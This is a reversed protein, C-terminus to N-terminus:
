SPYKLLSSGWLQCLVQTLNYFKFPHANLRRRVKSVVGVSFGCFGPLQVSYSSAKDCLCTTPISAKDKHSSIRLVHWLVIFLCWGCHM